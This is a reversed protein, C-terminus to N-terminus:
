ASAIDKTASCHYIEVVLEDILKGHYDADTATVTAIILPRTYTKDRIDIVRANNFRSVEIQVTERDYQQGIARRLKAEIEEARLEVPTEQGAADLSRDYLTLLHLRLCCRAM